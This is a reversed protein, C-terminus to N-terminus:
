GGGLGGLGPGRACAHCCLCIRIVSLSHSLDYTSYEEFVVKVAMYICSNGGYSVWVHCLFISRNGKMHRSIPIWMDM